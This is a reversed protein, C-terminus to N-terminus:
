AAAATPHRRNRTLGRSPARVAGQHEATAGAFASGTAQVAATHNCNKNGPLADMSTVADFQTRAHCTTGRCTKTARASASRTSVGTAHGEVRQADMKLVRMDQGYGPWVFKGDAIRQPVLQRLLHAAAERRRGAAQRRLRALSRLVRGHPLRHVAADRVPRAAGRRHRRSDRRHDRQGDHSGHLRRRGLQPGRHRAARYRAAAASSLRTSRWVRPTTGSPM